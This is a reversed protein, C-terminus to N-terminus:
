YNNRYRIRNRNGSGVRNMKMGNNNERIWKWENKRCDERDRKRDKFGWDEKINKVEEENDEDERVEM